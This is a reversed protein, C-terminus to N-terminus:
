VSKLVINIIHKFVCKTTFNLFNYNFVLVNVFRKIHINQYHAYYIIKLTKTLMKVRKYTTTVHITSLSYIIKM